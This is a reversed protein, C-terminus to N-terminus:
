KKKLKELDSVPRIFADSYGMSRIEKMAKYAAPYGEHEGVTYRYFKDTSPTVRVNKLGKFAGKYPPNYLAYIQVTYIIPGELQQTKGAFSKKLGGRKKLIERMEHDDYIRADNFGISYLKGLVEVAQSKQQFSGLTYVYEGDVENVQVYTLDEDNYRFFYDPPLKKKVKIVLISYTLEKDNKLKDPIAIEPKFALTTDSRILRIDVRREYKEADENKGPKNTKALPVALIKKKSGTKFRSEDIGLQNFYHVVKQARQISLDQLFDEGGNANAFGIIEFKLSPYEKMIHALRQLAIESVNNLDSRGKEFLVPRMYFVDGEGQQVPVLESKVVLNQHHLDSPITVNEIETKIAKGKVIFQYDNPALSIHYKGTVLDPQIKQILHQGSSDRIEVYVSSDMAALSNGFTILGSVFVKNVKSKLPFDIRFIDSGSKSGSGAYHSLFGSEGNNLPCFFLNDDTSNVPYGLSIPVTWGKGKKMESFFLDFGGMNYHGQSSFYLRKGDGSLKPADEMLPTNIVPGLNIPKGWEGNDDAETSEACYAHRSDV